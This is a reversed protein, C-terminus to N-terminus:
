FELLAHVGGGNKHAVPHLQFKMAHERKDKKHKVLLWTGVGASVLGLSLFVYLM